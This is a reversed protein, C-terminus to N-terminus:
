RAGGLVYRRGVHLRPARKPTETRGARFRHALALGLMVGETAAQDILAGVQDTDGSPLVRQHINEIVRGPDFEGGKKAAADQIAALAADADSLGLTLADWTQSLSAGEGALLLGIALLDDPINIPSKPESM